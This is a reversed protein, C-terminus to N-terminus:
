IVDVSKILKLILFENIYQMRRVVCSNGSLSDGGGHM